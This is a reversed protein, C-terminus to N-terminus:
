KKSPPSTAHYIAEKKPTNAYFCEAPQLAFTTLGRLAGLSRVIRLQELEDQKFVDEWADKLKIGGFAREDICLKLEKLNTFEVLEKNFWSSEWELKRAFQKLMGNSNLLFHLLHPDAASLFFRKSIMFDDVKYSPFPRTTYGERDFKKKERESSDWDDKFRINLDPKTPYALQFICDQIEQPFRWLFCPQNSWELNPHTAM